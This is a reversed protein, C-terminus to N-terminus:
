KAGDALPYLEDNERMMRKGLLKLVDRTERVFDGSRARITAPTPWRKAYDHFAGYIRRVDEYLAQARERVADDSHHLLRPYFAKNEMEAHILLKGTFRAVLRRVSAATEENELARADLQQMIEFGLAM